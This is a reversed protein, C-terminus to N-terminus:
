DIGKLIESGLFGTAVLFIEFSEKRSAQPKFAKARSFRRGLLALLEKEGGGQFIKVVLNGGKKLQEMSFAIIGEVLDRSRATDVSRNGTTAPAADSIITPFPGIERLREQIEEDFIDGQIVSLDPHGIAISQLDVATVRGKKKNLCYLAWSGPAAGIDLINPGKLVRFKRDIEELKFVSRAPYGLAKAKQTLHDSVRKMKVKGMRSQVKAM